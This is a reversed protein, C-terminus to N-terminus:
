PWRRAGPTRRWVSEELWRLRRDTALRDERMTRYMEQHAKEEDDVLDSIRDAMRTFRVTLRIILALMPLGIITMVTLGVSTWEFRTM